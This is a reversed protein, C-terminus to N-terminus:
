TYVDALAPDEHIATCVRAVGPTYALSLEEPGNLAMRATLEMKGGVHMDFAPDGAYPSDIATPDNLDQKLEPLAKM